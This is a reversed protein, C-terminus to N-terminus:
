ESSPVTIFEVQNYGELAEIDQISSIDEVENSTTTALPEAEQVLLSSSEESTSSVAEIAVVNDKPTIETAVADKVQVSVEVPILLEQGTQIMDSDLNNTAKIASVNTRYMYAIKSLTDGSVVTYYQASGEYTSPQYDAATEKTIEVVKGDVMPVEIVSGIKLVADKDIGNLECLENITTDFKRSLDWLTDGAQIAYTDLVNDSIQVSFADSGDTQIGEVQNFANLESQNLENEVSGIQAYINDLDSPTSLADRELKELEYDSQSPPSITSYCGPQVFLVLLVGVHLALIFGFVKSINM